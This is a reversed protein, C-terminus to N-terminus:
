LFYLVTLLWSVTKCWQNRGQKNKQICLVNIQGQVLRCHERERGRWVHMKFRLFSFSIKFLKFPLWSTSIVSYLGLVLPKARKFTYTDLLWSM